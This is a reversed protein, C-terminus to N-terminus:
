TLKEMVWLYCKTVIYVMAMGLNLTLYIALIWLILNSPIM